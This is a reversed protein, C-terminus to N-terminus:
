VNRPTLNSPYLSLGGCHFYVAIKFHDRNRFGCSRKQITSIKSNLGEAVANTIRHDFFTLVNHLHRHITRAAEIIPALQSHTAWFYWRKWFRLAWGRMRFDWLNRLSEKLAWARATKLTLSKLASFHDTADAPVNEASRLWLYKTRALTDDGEARLEKNEARRVRDLSRLVQQMIHFRDFVIKDKADPVAASTAKIYPEWMDMSIAQIGKLQVPTFVEFYAGLSAQSREEGVYEVSGHQLDCVLTMYRHGKAIAKEDVGLHEPVTLKKTARGRAVARQMVGWAEDWTIRLLQAARKVNAALLVDIALAEFMNTFRSGSEAWPLNVQLKGHEPCDVRPPRALLFTMFQCSDLHRWRREALHDFVPLDHGCQPCCFRTKPTHAVTVTVEKRAVDMDVREVSWPQKVGLLAEYLEKSDM